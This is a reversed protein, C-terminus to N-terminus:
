DWRFDFRNRHKTIRVGHPSCFHAPLLMANTEACLDLLQIRSRGAEVPDWCAVSAWDPHWIQMPHHVVDGSLVARLGHRELRIVCHGPTHGPMQQVVVGRDLTYGSEIFDAKGAAVIPLVSDDFAGRSAPKSRNQSLFYAYEERAFLYRANPFTPIWRGNHLRTNWGVHDVHLHTCMVIDIDEISCGVKELGELYSFEAQDWQAISPRKKNNGVCTDILINLGPTRLLWSHISLRLRDDSTLFDPELRHRRDWILKPDYDPFFESAGFFEAVSERIIDLQYGDWSYRM